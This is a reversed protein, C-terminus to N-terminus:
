LVRRAQVYSRYWYRESLSSLIVGKSSSAHIFEFFDDKIKTVIGVHTIKRSNKRTAFFVLDGIRIKKIDIWKGKLSQAKASRPLSINQNAYVNQVLASCDIGRKSTGGYQYRTGLYAKADKIIQHTQPTISQKHNNKVTNTTKSRSKSINTATSKCSVFLIFISIIFIHHLNKKIM